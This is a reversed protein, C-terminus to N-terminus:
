IRHKKWVFLVDPGVTMLVMYEGPGAIKTNRRGARHSPRQTRRYLWLWVDGDRVSVPSRGRRFWVDALEERTLWCSTWGGRWGRARPEFRSSGRVSMCIVCSERWAELQHLLHVLEMQEEDYRDQATVSPNGRDYGVAFTAM